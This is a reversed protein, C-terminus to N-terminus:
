DRWDRSVSKKRKIGLRPYTRDIYDMQEKSIIIVNGACQTMCLKAAHGSKDGKTPAGYTNM